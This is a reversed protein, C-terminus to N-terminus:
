IRGSRLIDLASVALAEVSAGAQEPDVDLDGM